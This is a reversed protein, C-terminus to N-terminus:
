RNLVGGVGSTEAAFSTAGSAVGSENKKWPRTLTARDAVKVDFVTAIVPMLMAAVILMVPPSYEIPHVAVKVAADPVILM